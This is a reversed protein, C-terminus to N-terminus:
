ACNNRRKCAKSHLEFIKQYGRKKNNRILTPLKESAALCTVFIAVKLGRLGGNEDIFDILSRMPREYYIPSGVVILDFSGPDPCSSKVRCLTVEVGKGRLVNAICEAIVRTTGFERKSDYVILM